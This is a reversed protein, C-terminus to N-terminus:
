QLYWDHKMDKPDIGRKLLGHYCLDTPDRKQLRKCSPCVRKQESRHESSLAVRAAEAEAAREADSDIDVCGATLKLEFLHDVHDEFARGLHDRIDEGLSEVFRAERFEAVHHDFIYARLRM